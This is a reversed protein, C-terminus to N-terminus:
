PFPYPETKQGDKCCRNGDGQKDMEHGTIRDLDHIRLALAGCRFLQFLHPM